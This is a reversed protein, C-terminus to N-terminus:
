ENIIRILADHLKGRIIFKEDTIIDSLIKSDCSNIINIEKIIGNFTNIKDISYEGCHSFYHVDFYDMKIFKSYTENYDIIDPYYPFSEKVFIIDNINNMKNYNCLFLSDQIKNKNEYIYIEFTNIVEYVSYQNKTLEKFNLSKLSPLSM